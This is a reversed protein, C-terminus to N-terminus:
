PELATVRVDLAAIAAELDGDADELAAFQRQVSQWWVRTATTPYGDKDFMPKRDPLPPLM